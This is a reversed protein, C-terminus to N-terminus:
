EYQWNKIFVAMITYLLLLVLMMEIWQTGLLMPYLTEKLYLVSFLASAFGIPQYSDKDWKFWKEFLVTNLVFLAMLALFPIKVPNLITWKILFVFEANILFGVGLDKIFEKSSM